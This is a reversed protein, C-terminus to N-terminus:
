ALEGAKPSRAWDLALDAVAEWGAEGCTFHDRGEFFKYATVGPSKKVHKKYNERQVAPPVAHDNGGSVFLLPARDATFDLTLPSNPTFNAFGAEFIMRGSVPIAYRDYIPKADAVRLNNTFGYHFQKETIPVARKKNAPNKTVPFTAKIQSFPLAKIGKPGAGDLSVGASGLGRALLLQVFAGGFSHGMIIPKADLGSILEALHDVIQQVGLGALPSMDRRIAAVGEEGQGIGPYGPTIVKMGAQEYRTVWHEWSLPTMWLGHILVVTDTTATDM